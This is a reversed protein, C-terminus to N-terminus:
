PSMDEKEAGEGGAEAPEVKVQRAARRHNRQKRVASKESVNAGPASTLEKFYPGIRDLNTLLLGTLSVIAVVVATYFKWRNDSERAKWEDKKLLRRVENILGGNGVADPWLVANIRRLDGKTVDLEEILGDGPNGRLIRDLEEIKEELGELRDNQTAEGNQLNVVREETRDRWRLDDERKYLNEDSL